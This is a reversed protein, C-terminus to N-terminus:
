KIYSEPLFGIKIKGDLDDTCYGGIEEAKYCVKNNSGIFNDKPKGTENTGVKAICWDYETISTTRDMISTRNGNTCQGDNTGRVAPLAPVCYKETGNKSRRGGNEWCLCAGWSQTDVSAGYGSPCMNEITEYETNSGTKKNSIIGYPEILTKYNSDDFNAVCFNNVDYNGRMNRYEVFLGQMNQCQSTLNSVINNYIETAIGSARKERKIIKNEEDKKQLGYAISCSNTSCNDGREQEFSYSGRGSDSVDYKVNFKDLGGFVTEVTEMDSCADIDLLQQACISKIKPNNSADVDTYDYLTFWDIAEGRSFLGSDPYYFNEYNVGGYKDFCQKVVARCATLTDTERISNIYEAIINNDFMNNCSEVYDSCMQSSLTIKNPQLVVKNDTSLESMAADIAAEDNMYCTAVYDFCNQRIEAVKSKQAYYIDLLAKDLYESWVLEADETCKDLAPQAFAKTRTEFNLVFSRNSPVKSLKQNASDIGDAFILLQELKYFDEVGSIPAGTTIDIFQGNDLCKHYNAGCVEESQIASQVSNVCATFDLSNHKQRNEVRALDLMASGERIASKVDKQKTEIATQVTNCDQEIAMLYATIARQLAADTCDARVADRCQPYVANYLAVGNYAAITQGVDTMGFANVTDFVMNVSNLDSYKGGVTSDEGRISNMIAQLLAKSASNDSTLASEGESETRMATAQSATMGVVDLNETFITLKEGATQLVSRADAFGFVRDNCSCRRYDDNKLSCFQDMCSFYTNKCQEYEAGIRTSSMLAGSEMGARAVVNAQKGSSKKTTRQAASNINSKKTTATRSKNELVGRSTSTASRETTATATRSSLVSIRPATSRVSKTSIRSQSQTANSARGGKTRPASAGDRVAGNATGICIFITAVLTLIKNM